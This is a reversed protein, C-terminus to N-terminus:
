QSRRADLTANEDARCGGHRGGASATACLPGKKGPNQRATSRDETRSFCPFNVGRLDGAPSVLSNRRWHRQRTPFRHANCLQSPQSSINWRAVPPGRLCPHPNSSPLLPGEIDSHHHYSRHPADFVVKRTFPISAHSWPSLCLEVFGDVCGCMGPRRREMYPCSNSHREMERIVLNSKM